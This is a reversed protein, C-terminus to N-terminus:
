INIIFDFYIFFYITRIIVMGFLTIAIWSLWFVYVCNYFKVHKSKISLDIGVITLILVAMKM